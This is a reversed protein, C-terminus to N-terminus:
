AMCTSRDVRSANALSLSLSTSLLPGGRNKQGLSRSDASLTLNDEQTRKTNDKQTKTKELTNITRKSQTIREHPLPLRVLARQLFPFCLIASGM